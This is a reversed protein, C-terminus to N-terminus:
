QIRTRVRQSSLVSNLIHHSNLRTAVVQTNAVVMRNNNSNSNVVPHNHAAAVLHLHTQLLAKNVNPVLAPANANVSTTTTTIPDVAPLALGVEEKTATTAVVTTAKTKTNAKVVKITGKSPPKSDSTKTFSRLSNHIHVRPLITTSLAATKKAVTRSCNTRVVYNRNTAHHEQTHLTHLNSITTPATLTVRHNHNPMM